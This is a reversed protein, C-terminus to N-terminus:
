VTLENENQIEIAKRFIMGLFFLFVSMFIWVDAGALRMVEVDPLEVGKSVIWDRYKRGLLCLFGITLILFASSLIFNGFALTFPKNINLKPTNLLVIIRYFLFAELGSILIIILNMIMFQNKNYWYLNTLDVEKWLVPILDPRSMILITTVLFSGTVFCLAVFFIWSLVNMLGLIWKTGM